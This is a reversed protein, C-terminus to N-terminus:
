KWLLVWQRKENVSSKIEGSERETRRSQDGEAVLEGIMREIADHAIQGRDVM